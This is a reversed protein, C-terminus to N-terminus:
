GFPRQANHAPQTYRCIYFNYKPLSRNLLQRRFILLTCHLTLIVPLYTHYLALLLTRWSFYFCLSRHLAPYQYLIDRHSFNMPIPRLVLRAQLGCWVQQTTKTPLGLCALVLWALPMRDCRPSSGFVLGLCTYIASIALAISRM